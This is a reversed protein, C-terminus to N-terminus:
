RRKFFISVIEFYRKPGIMDRVHDLMRGGDCQTPGLDRWNEKLHSELTKQLTEIEREYQPLIDHERFLYTLEQHLNEPEIKM